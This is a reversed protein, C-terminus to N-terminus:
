QTLAGRSITGALQRFLQPLSDNKLLPFYHDCNTLNGSGDRMSSSIQMLVWDSPSYDAPVSTSGAGCEYHGPGHSALASMCTSSQYDGAHACQFNITYIEVDDATGIVTDPGARLTAASTMADTDWTSANFTGSPTNNPVQNEGDTMMILVKKAYGAGGVSNDNRSGSATFLYNSGFATCGVSPCTLGNKQGVYNGQLVVNLPNSLRTSDSNTSVYSLGCAYYSDMCTGTTVSDLATRELSNRDSSLLTAGLTPGVYTSHSSTSPDTLVTVDDVCSSTKYNGFGDPWQSCKKGQFRVIAIRPGRPDSADPAMAQVFQDTANQLQPISSSLQESLTTDIAVVVDILGRAARAQGGGNVTVQPVGILPWFATQHQRSVSLKLNDPIPTAPTPVGAVPTSTPFTISYTTSTSTTDVGNNQLYNNAVSVATQQAPGPGAAFNRSLSDSGALLAADAANQLQANDVVISAYDFASGALILLVVLFVAFLVMIQGTEKSRLSTRLINM